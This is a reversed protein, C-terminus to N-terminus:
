QLCVHCWFVHVVSPLYWLSKAKDFYLTFLQFRILLLQMSTHNASSPKDAINALLAPCSFYIVDMTYKQYMM